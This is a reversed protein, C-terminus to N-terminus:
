GRADDQADSAGASHAVGSAATILDGLETLPLDTQLLSLRMLLDDFSTAAMVEARIVSIWKDTIPGAREALQDVINDIFTDQERAADSNAKCAASHVHATLAASGPMPAAPLASAQLVDEDGDPEPIGVQTQAWNRPIRFGANILPPLSEAFVKLDAYQSIDFVFQPCRRIGDPVLGNVSAIAFVLDRTITQAIQRADSDRLDIRVDNHVNGLANTNSGRDAQSTLTAGLIAKSVSREAWDIMLEFAQPDGKAAEEFDITMGDPIIGAANRGISLLARLLTAKEPEGTGSPYKGIRMPIGYIELFEQLDGVSYVKFLYPWVLVRFLGSREIYGSKAKHTHTIWGLPQLPAGDASHDRLRIEQKFARPLKFWTQPRHIVAKPLWVGDTREWGDFELCSFGKGIADTIDFLMEDFDPLSQLLQHLQQAARKERASPNSPPEVSWPLGSVARRRKSMEAFIHADREEMDEFLEYQAIIDGQEASILIEAMRAPTIGRAPHSAFERHLNAVDATQPRKIDRATLADIGANLRAM